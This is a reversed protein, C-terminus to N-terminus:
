SELSVGVTGSIRRVRYTGPGNLQVAANQATLRAVEADVGPTDLYVICVADQSLGGAAVFMAVSVQAGAAVSVDSSLGESAGVALITSQAM